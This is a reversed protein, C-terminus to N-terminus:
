DFRGAAHALMTYVKGTDSTLYTRALMSNPDERSVESLLQEFEQVYRDVTDRFSSDTQYRRRIEDFAQQGQQTYLRRTFAHREGRRYRDWAEIAGAHDVMRVIDFTIADLLEISKRATTAPPPPPAAPREDRSARALLDSLWGPGREAPAPSASAVPAAPRARAPAPPSPPEYKRPAPRPAELAPTAALAVPEAADFARGSRQVIDTLEGLARIQDAVVRRMAAAQEATERPLAEANHVLEARTAELERQIEGAVDRMEGAAARFRETTQGFLAALEANAQEYTARLAAATRERETGATDRIEAFQRDIVNATALTSDSLFVGIDRARLEARGFSEGIVTTFAQMLHEFDARRTEVSALLADLADRRERM